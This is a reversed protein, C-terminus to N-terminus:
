SQSLTARSDAIRDAWAVDHTAVCVSLGRGSLARLTEGLRNAVPADLAATPEDLLLVAPGRSLARAVAVRAQEGGSLQDARRSAFEADLGALRLYHAADVGDTAYDVNEAVTGPLMKPQQAVLSVRRRLDSPEFDTIPRGDLRVEGSDPRLLGNCCRLLTSKGAGSPAILATVTGPRVDLGAGTLVRRSGRRVVLGNATLTAGTISAHGV